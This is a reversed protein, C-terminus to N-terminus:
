VTAGDMVKLIRQKLQEKLNTHGVWDYFKFCGDPHKIFAYVEGDYIYAYGQRYGDMRMLVAVIIIRADKDPNQYYLEYWYQGIQFTKDKLFIWTKEVAKPNVMGEYCPQDNVAQVLEVKHPQITACSVMLFAVVILMFISKRM